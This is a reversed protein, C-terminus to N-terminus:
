LYHLCLVRTNNEQCYLTRVRVWFHTLLLGNRSRTRIPRKVCRLNISFINSSLLHRWFGQFSIKRSFAKRWSTSVPLPALCHSKQEFNEWSMETLDNLNIKVFVTEGMCRTVSKVILQPKMQPPWSNSAISGNAKSVLIEWM